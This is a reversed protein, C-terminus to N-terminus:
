DLRDITLQRFLSPFRYGCILKKLFSSRPPMVGAIFYVDGNLTLYPGVIGQDAHFCRGLEPRVGMMQFLGNSIPQGQVQEPEDAGTLDLDRIEYASRVSYRLDWSSTMASGDGFSEPLRVRRTSDERLASSVKQRSEVRRLDRYAYGIVDSRQFLLLVKV